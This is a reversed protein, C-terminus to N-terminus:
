QGVIALVENLCTNMQVVLRILHRKHKLRHVHISWSLELDEMLILESGDFALRHWLFGETREPAIFLGHPRASAIVLHGTLRREKKVGKANFM